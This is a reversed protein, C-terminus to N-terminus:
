AAKIITTLKQLIENEWFKKIEHDENISILLVSYLANKIVLSKKLGTLKSYAEVDRMGAPSFYLNKKLIDRRDLLDLHGLNKYESLKNLILRGKKTDIFNIFTITIARVILSEDFTGLRQKLKVLVVYANFSLSYQIKFLERNKEKLQHLWQSFEDDIKQTWLAQGDRDIHTSYTFTQGLFEKKVIQKAM